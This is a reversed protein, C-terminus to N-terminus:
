GAGAQLNRRLRHVAQVEAAGRRRVLSIEELVRDQLRLRGRVEFYESGVSVRAADVSSGPPLLARV